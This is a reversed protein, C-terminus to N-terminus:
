AGTLGGVFMNLMAQQGKGYTTVDMKIATISEQFGLNRLTEQISKPLQVPCRRIFAEMYTVDYLRYSELLTKLFAEQSEQALDSAAKRTRLYLTMADFTRMDTSTFVVPLGRRMDVVSDTVKGNDLTVAVSGVGSIAKLTGNFNQETFTNDFVFQPMGPMCHEAAASIAGMAYIIKLILSKGSSNAGVFVSLQGLEVEQQMKIPTTIDLRLKEWRASAETEQPTSM